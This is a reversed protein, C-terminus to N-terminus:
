INHSFNISRLFECYLIIEFNKNQFRWMIEVNTLFTSLSQAEMTYRKRLIQSPWFSLFPLIENNQTETPAHQSSTCQHHHQHHFTIQQLWYDTILTLTQWQVHSECQVLRQQYSIIIIIDVLGSQRCIQLVTHKATPSQVTIPVTPIGRYFWLNHTCDVTIGHSLTINCPTVTPISGVGDIM